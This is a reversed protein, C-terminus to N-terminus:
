TLKKKSFLQFIHIRVKQIIDSNRMPFNEPLNKSKDKCFVLELSLDEPRIKHKKCFESLKIEEEEYLKERSKQLKLHIKNADRFKTKMLHNFKDETFSSVSYEGVAM